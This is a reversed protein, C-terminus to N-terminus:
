MSLSYILDFLRKKRSRSFFHDGSALLLLLFITSYCFRSHAPFAIKLDSFFFENAVLPFESFYKLVNV